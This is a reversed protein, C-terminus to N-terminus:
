ETKVVWGRPLLEMLLRFAQDLYAADKSELTLRVRYESNGIKPYSGLLLDPFRAVCLNLHEAIADERASTYIVRLYYPDTAFRGILSLLKSEFLQPIGPLMYVNELQITPFAMEGGANLIAGEPAEAM